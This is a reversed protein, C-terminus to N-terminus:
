SPARWARWMPLVFIAYWIASAAATAFKSNAAWVALRHASFSQAPEPTPLIAMSMEVHISRARLGRDRSERRMWIM